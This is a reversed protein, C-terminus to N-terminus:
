VVTEPARDLSTYANNLRRILDQSHADSQDALERKVKMIAFGVAHAEEETLEVTYKKNM